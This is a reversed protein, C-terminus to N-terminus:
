SSGMLPPYGCSGLLAVAATMRRRVVEPSEDLDPQRPSWTLDARQPRVSASSFGEMTALRHLAERARPQTLTATLTSPDSGSFRLQEDLEDDGITLDKLVGLSVLLRSGADHRAATWTVPCSARVRLSAGGSSYQSRQQISYRCSYGECLGEVAPPVTAVRRATGFDFAPAVREVFRRAQARALGVFLAIAAVAGLAALVIIQSPELEPM